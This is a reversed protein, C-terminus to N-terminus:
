RALQYLFLRPALGATKSVRAAEAGPLNTVCALRKGRSECKMHGFPGRRKPELPQRSVIDARGVTWLEWGVNPGSAIRVLIAVGGPTAVLDDITPQRNLLQRYRGDVDQGYSKVLAVSDVILDDIGSGLVELLKGNRDYRYVGPEASTVLAVSGDALAVASGGYPHATLRWRQLGEETLMRHIPSEQVESGPTQPFLAGRQQDATTGIKTLWGLAFAKGHTVALGRPMLAGGHYGYLYKGEITRFMAHRMGGGMIVVLRGDTAVLEPYPSGDPLSGKPVWVSAKKSKVSVRVVGGETLVVLVEEDNIWAVDAAASGHAALDIAASPQLPALAVASALLVFALNVM